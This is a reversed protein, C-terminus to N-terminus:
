VALGVTVALLVRVCVAEIVALGLRVALRVILEEIV